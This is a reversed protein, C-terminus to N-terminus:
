RCYVQYQTTPDCVNGNGDESYGGVIAGCSLSSATAIRVRCVPEPPEPLYKTIRFVYGISASTRGGTVSAMGPPALVKQPICGNTPTSPYYPGTGCVSSWQCSNDAPPYGKTTAFSVGNSLACGLVYNAAGAYDVAGAQAAYNECDTEVWSDPASITDKAGTDFIARCLKGLSPGTAASSQFTGDPFSIGGGSGPLSIGKGGIILGTNADANIGQNAGFNLPFITPSASFNIQGSAADQTVGNRSDLPQAINGTDPFAAVPATWNAAYVLSGGVILASVIVSMVLVKNHLM